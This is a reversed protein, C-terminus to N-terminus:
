EYDSEQRLERKSILFNLSLVTRSCPLVLPRRWHLENANLKM